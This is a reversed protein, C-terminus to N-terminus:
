FSTHYSRNIRKLFISFLHYTWRKVSSKFFRCFFFISNIKIM